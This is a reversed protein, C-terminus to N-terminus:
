SGLGAAWAATAKVKAKCDAYASELGNRYDIDALLSIPPEPLPPREACALLEPPPKIATLREPAGCATTTLPM